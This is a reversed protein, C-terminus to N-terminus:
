SGCISLSLELNVRRGVFSCGPPGSCDTSFNRPSPSIVCSAESPWSSIANAAKQDVALSLPPARKKVQEDRTASRVMFFRSEHNEKCSIKMNRVMHNLQHAKPKSIQHVMFPEERRGQVWFGLAQHLSSAAAAPARARAAAAADHQDSRRRDMSVEQLRMCDDIFYRTGAPPASSRMDSSGEMCRYKGSAETGVKARKIPPCMFEKPSQEDSGFSHQKLHLQPQMDNQGIGHRTGRYMQLHSKVHSITLGRVDMLQLILKPTAKQQGGLCDIARVFSRHLEATWRLRPVKSRNYQRAAGKREGSIGM